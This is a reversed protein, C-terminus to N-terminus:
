NREVSVTFLEDSNFAACLIKCFELFHPNLLEGTKYSGYYIATDGAFGQCYYDYFFIKGKLQDKYYVEYINNYVYKIKFM